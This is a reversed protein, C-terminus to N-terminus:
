TLVRELEAHLVLSARAHGEGLVLDHGNSSSSFWMM